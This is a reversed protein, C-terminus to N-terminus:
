ANPQCKKWMCLSIYWGIFIWYRSVLIRRGPSRVNQTWTLYFGASCVLKCYIPKGITIRIKVWNCVTLYVKFQDITWATPYNPQKKENTRKTIWLTYGDSKAIDYSYASVWIKLAPSKNNTNGANLIIQSQLEIKSFPFLTKSKWISMDGTKNGLSSDSPQLYRPIWCSPNFERNQSGVIRKRQWSEINQQVEEVAQVSLHKKGHWYPWWTMRSNLFEIWTRFSTDREADPPYM